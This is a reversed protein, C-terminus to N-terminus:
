FGKALDPIKTGPTMSGTRVTLLAFEELIM